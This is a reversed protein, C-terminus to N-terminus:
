VVSKRDLKKTVARGFIGYGIMMVDRYNLFQNTYAIFSSLEEVIKQGIFVSELCMKIESRAISVSPYSYHTKSSLIRTGSTTQEVSGIISGILEPYIEELNDITQSHYGGDEIIFLRMGRRIEPLIDKAVAATILM